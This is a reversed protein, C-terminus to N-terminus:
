SHVQLHAQSAAFSTLLLIGAGGDTHLCNVWLLGLSLDTAWTHQEIRAVDNTQLQSVGAPHGCIVSQLDCALHGASISAIEHISIHIYIYLYWNTLRWSAGRKSLSMPAQSSKINAYVPPGIQWIWSHIYAAWAGTSSWQSSPQALSGFCWPIM